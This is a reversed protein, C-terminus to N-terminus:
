QEKILKILAKAEDDGREAMDKLYSKRCSRFTVGIEDFPVAENLGGATSKLIYLPQNTVSHGALMVLQYVDGFTNEGERVDEYYEPLNDSM